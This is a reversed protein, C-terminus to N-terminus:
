RKNNHRPTPELYPNKQEKQWRSDYRPVPELYPNKEKKQLRDISRLMLEASDWPGRGNTRSKCKEGEIM